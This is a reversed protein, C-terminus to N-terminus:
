RVSFENVAMKMSLRATSSHVPQGSESLSTTLANSLSCVRQAAHGWTTSFVWSDERSDRLLSPSQNYPTLNENPHSTNISLSSLRQSPLPTHLTTLRLNWLQITIDAAGFPVLKYEADPLQFRNSPPQDITPRHCTVMSSGVPTLKSELYLPLLRLAQALTQEWSLRM